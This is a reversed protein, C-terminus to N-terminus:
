VQTHSLELQSSNELLTSFKSFKQSKSTIESFKDLSIRRGWLWQSVKGPSIALELQRVFMQFYNIWKRFFVRM